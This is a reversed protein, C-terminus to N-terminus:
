CGCEGCSSGEDIRKRCISKTWPGDCNSRYYGDSCRRDINRRCDCCGADDCGTPCCAGTKWTWGDYGGSRCQDPRHRYHCGTSKHYGNVNCCCLKSGQNCGRCGDDNVWDGLGACGEWIRWTGHEAAAPRAPPFIGLATVGVASGVALAGSIFERRTPRLRDFTARRGKARRPGGGSGPVSLPAVDHIRLTM